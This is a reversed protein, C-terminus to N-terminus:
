EFSNNDFDYVYHYISYDLYWDDHEKFLYELLTDMNRGEDGYINYPESLGNCLDVKKVSQMCLELEDDRFYMELCKRFRGEITGEIYDIETLSYLINNWREIESQLYDFKVDDPTHISYVEPSMDEYDVRITHIM